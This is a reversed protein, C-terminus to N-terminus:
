AIKEDKISNTQTNSDDWINTNWQFNELMQTKRLWIYAMSFMQIKM